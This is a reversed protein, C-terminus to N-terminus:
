KFWNAIIVLIFGIYLMSPYLLSINKSEDSTPLLEVSILWLLASAGFSLTFLYIPSKTGTKHAIYVGMIGSVIIISSLTAAIGLIYGIKKKDQKMKRALVIGLFINDISLAISLFYKKFGTLAKSSIGIILGDILVDFVASVTIENSVGFNKWQVIARVGLLLSAGLILGLLIAIRHQTIEPKTILPLIETALAAFLAGSVLYQFSMNVETSVDVELGIVMGIFITIAPISIPIINSKNIWM